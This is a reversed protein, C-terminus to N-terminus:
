RYHWLLQAEGHAQHHSSCAALAEPGESGTEGRDQHLSALELVEWYPPETVVHVQRRSAWALVVQWGLWTEEHVLHLHASAV